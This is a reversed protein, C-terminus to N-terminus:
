FPDPDVYLRSDQSLSPFYIDGSKEMWESQAQAVKCILTPLIFSM